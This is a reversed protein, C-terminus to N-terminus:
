QQYYANFVVTYAYVDQSPKTGAQELRLSMLDMVRVNTELSRLFKKIGDYNGILRLTASVSGLKVPNLALSHLGFAQIVLGSSNAIAQIQQFIAATDESPPLAMNATQQLQVAGKFQALLNQIQAIITKQSDFLQEKAALTARLQQVDKFEPRVFNAYVALAAVLFLASLLVSVSRKTAPSM